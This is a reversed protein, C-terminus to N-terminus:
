PFRRPHLATRPLSKKTVATLKEIQPLLANYIQGLMSDKPLPYGTDYKGSLAGLELVMYSYFVIDHANCGDLIGADESFRHM